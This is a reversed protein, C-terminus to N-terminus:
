VENKIAAIAAGLPWAAELEIEGKYTLHKTVKLDLNPDLKFGETLLASVYMLDICKWWELKDVQKQPPSQAAQCHEEAAKLFDNASLSGESANSPVLGEEQALDFIYSFLRWESISNPEYPGLWSGNLGCKTNSGATNLTILKCTGNLEDNEGIAASKILEMCADVPSAAGAKRPVVPVEKEGYRYKTGRPTWEPVCPHPAGSELMELARLRFAVLGYGLWSHLYLTSRKSRELYTEVEKAVAPHRDAFDPSTKYALQVSGGGLDVIAMKKKDDSNVAFHTMTFMFKAELKGDITDVTGVRFGSQGLVRRAEDLLADAQEPRLLRLGATAMLIVETEKWMKKPVVNRAKEMLDMLGRRCASPNDAYQSLGGDVKVFLPISILSLDSERIDASGLVFKPSEFHFVHIRTGTSGADLVVKYISQTSTSNAFAMFVLVFGGLAILWLKWSKRLEHVGWRMLMKTDM